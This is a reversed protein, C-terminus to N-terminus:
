TDHVYRVRDAVATLTPVIADAELNQVPSDESYGYPLVVVPCGAARAAGVDNVSDGVMLLRAPAIGFAAAVHLLPEADPKRTALTDGGVILGFHHAVGAQELHPRVFRAAKNTVIALPFGMAKLRALGDHLGPYARTERGLVAAYRAQYRVLAADITAEDIAAPAVGRAQALARRVLNGMGKGVMTRIAATPLPEHELEVLLANVAAALDDITDLLTGDLDFAIASVDFIRPQEDGHTDDRQRSGAATTHVGVGSPARNAGQPPGAASM